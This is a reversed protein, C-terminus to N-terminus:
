NKMNQCPRSLLTRFVRCNESLNCTLQDLGQRGNVFVFGCSKM